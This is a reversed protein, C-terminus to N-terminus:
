RGADEDEELKELVRALLFQTNEDQKVRGLRSELAAIRTQLQGVMAQDPRALLRPPPLPIKNSQLFTGQPSLAELRSMLAHPIQGTHKGQFM